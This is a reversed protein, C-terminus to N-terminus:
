YIYIYICIIYINIYIHIYIYLYIYINPHMTQGEVDEIKKLFIKSIYNSTLLLSFFDWGIWNINVGEVRPKFIANKLNKETKLRYFRKKSVIKLMKPNWYDSIIHICGKFLTENSCFYKQRIQHFIFQYIRFFVLVIIFWLRKSYNKCFCM